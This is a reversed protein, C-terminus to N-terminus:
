KITINEPLVHFEMNYTGKTFTGIVEIDTDDAPADWEGDVIMVIGKSSGDTGKEMISVNSGGKFTFGSIQVVTGEAIKM